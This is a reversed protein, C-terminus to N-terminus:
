GYLREALAEAAALVLQSRWKNFFHGRLVVFATHLKEVENSVVPDNRESPQGGTSAAAAHGALNFLLRLLEAGLEPQAFSNAVCAVFARGQNRYPIRYKNIKKNQFENLNCKKPKHNLDYVHGIKGDGVLQTFKDLRCRVNDPVM